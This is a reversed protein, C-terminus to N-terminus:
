NGDSLRKRMEGVLLDLGRLADQRDTATALLSLVIMEACCTTLLSAKGHGDLETLTVPEPPEDLMDDLLAVLCDRTDRLRKDDNEVGMM